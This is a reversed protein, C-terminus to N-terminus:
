FHKTSFFFPILSIHNPSSQKFKHNRETYSLLLLPVLIRGQPAGGTLFSAHSAFITNSIQHFDTLSWIFLFEVPVTVSPLRTCRFNPPFNLFVTGYKCKKELQQTIVFGLFHCIYIYIYKKKFWTPWPHVTKDGGNEFYLSCLINWSSHLFLPIQSWFPSWLSRSFTM